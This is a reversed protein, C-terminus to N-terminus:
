RGKRSSTSYKRRLFEEVEDKEQLSMGAIQGEFHAQKPSSQPLEIEKTTPVSASREKPQEQGRGQQHHNISTAAIPPSTQTPAETGSGAKSYEPTLDGHYPKRVGKAWEEKKFRWIGLTREEDLTTGALRALREAVEDQGVTKYFVHQWNETELGAEERMRRQGKEIKGKADSVSQMDGRNLADRTEKWARRSEWPDQEKVPAVILRSVKPADISFTEIDEGAQVDHIVFEGNWQGAVTYLPQSEEDERYLSADFSNKARHGLFSKGSFEIRSM